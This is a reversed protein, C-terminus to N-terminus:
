LHWHGSTTGCETIEVVIAPDIDYRCGQALTRVEEQITASLKMPERDGQAALAAVTITV